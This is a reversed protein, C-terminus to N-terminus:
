RALCATSLCSFRRPRQACGCSVMQYSQYYAAGRGDAHFYRHLACHPLRPDEGASTPAYRWGRTCGCRSPGFTNARPAHEHVITRYADPDTAPLHIADYYGQTATNVCAVDRMQEGTAYVYIVPAGRTPVPRLRTVIIRKRSHTEVLDAFAPTEPDHFVTTGVRRVGIFTSPLSARRQAM